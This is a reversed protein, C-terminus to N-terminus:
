CKDNRDKIKKKAADPEKAFEVSNTADNTNCSQALKCQNNRANKKGIDKDRKNKSLKKV